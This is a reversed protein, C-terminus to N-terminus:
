LDGAPGSPVYVLGNASTGGIRLWTSNGLQSILNVLTDDCIDISADLSATDINVSVFDAPLKHLPTGGDWNFTANDIASVGFIGTMILLCRMENIFVMQLVDEV